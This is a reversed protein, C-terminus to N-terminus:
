NKKITAIIIITYLNKSISRTNQPSFYHIVERINKDIKLPNETYLSMVYAFLCFKIEEKWVQSPNKKKEFKNCQTSGEIQQQIFM